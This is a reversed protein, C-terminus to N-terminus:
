DFDGGFDADDIDTRPQTYRLPNGKFKRIKAPILHTQFKSVSDTIRLISQLENPVEHNESQYNFVVYYGSRQKDFEFAMEKKGWTDVGLLEAKNSQILSEIKKIEEKIQADTLRPNFIVVSEYRRVEMPCRYILYFSDNPV